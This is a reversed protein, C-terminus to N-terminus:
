DAFWIQCYDSEWTRATVTHTASTPEKVTHAYDRGINSRLASSLEKPYFSNQVFKTTSIDVKPRTEIWYKPDLEWGSSLQKNLKQLRTEGEATWAETYILRYMVNLYKQFSLRQVFLKFSVYM